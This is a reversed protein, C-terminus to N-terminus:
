IRFASKLVPEFLWDDSTVIGDSKITNSYLIVSIVEEINRSVNEIRNGPADTVTVILRSSATSAKIVDCFDIYLSAM